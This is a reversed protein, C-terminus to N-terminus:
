GMHVQVFYCAFRLTWVIPGAWFWQWPSDITDCAEDGLREVRAAWCFWQIAGVVTWTLMVAYFIEM